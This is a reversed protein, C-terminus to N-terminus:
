AQPILTLYHSGQSTVIETAPRHPPLGSVAPHKYPAHFNIHRVTAPHGNHLILDGPKLDPDAPDKALQTLEEETQHSRVYDILGNFTDYLSHRDDDIADCAAELKEVLATPDLPIGPRTLAPEERRPCTSHDQRPPRLSRPRGTPLRPRAFRRPSLAASPKDPTNRVNASHGYLHGPLSPLGDRHGACLRM